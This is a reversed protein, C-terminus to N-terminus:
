QNLEVLRKLLRLVEENQKNNKVLQGRIGLLTFIMIVALGLGILVIM